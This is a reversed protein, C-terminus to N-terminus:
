EELEGGEDGVRRRRFCVLLSMDLYPWPEEVEEESSCSVFSASREEAGGKNADGRGGIKM